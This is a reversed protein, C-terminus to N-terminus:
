VQAALRVIAAEYASLVETRRDDLADYLFPQAEINRSPWGFHIPGAYPARAAGARVVGAVAQGSARITSDLLGKDKPVEVKAQKAVIDAAELNIKKLDAVDAGMKQFASRLERLGVVEVKQVIPRATM